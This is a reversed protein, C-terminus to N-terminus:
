LACLCQLQRRMSVVLKPVSAASVLVSLGGDNHELLLSNPIGAILEVVEAPRQNTIFYGEHQESYLHVTGAREKARFTLNLRPLEVLDITCDDSPHSVVSHSWVLM